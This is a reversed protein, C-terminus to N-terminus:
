CLVCGAAQMVHGGAWAHQVGCARRRGACARLLGALVRRRWGEGTGDVVPSTSVSRLGSPGGIRLHGAWSCGRFVPGCMVREGGRGGERRCVM